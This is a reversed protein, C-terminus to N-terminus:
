APTVDVGDFTVSKLIEGAGFGSLTFSVSRQRIYEEAVRQSGVLESSVDQIVFAAVHMPWGSNVFRETAASTWQTEAVSWVDTSPNLSADAPNPDFAQYPNIKTEDSKLYQNVIIEETYPLTLEPATLTRITADIPLHMLGSFVAATQPLGQDRYTDDFLPDAFSGRKSAPERENMDNKLRLESILIGHNEQTELMRRLSTFPLVVTGVQEVIPMNRWNNTINALRILNSAVWAVAPKTRSSVGKIYVIEGTQDVCIADIRPMKYRYTILAQTGPVGGKITVTKETVDADNPQVTAMYRYTVSYTTGPSPEAGGPSWDVAGGSLLYDTGSKYTTSGSKVSMIQNATPDPLADSSGSILGRTVTVTKERNVIVSQVSLIPANRIEIVHPAPGSLLHPENQVLEIDPEEPVILRSSASRTYKYGRVNVTGDSVSFEQAGTQDNYGLARVRFGEVVYSGHAERDYRRITDLWPNEETTVERGTESGDNIEYVPYFQGEEGDGDWGWFANALYAPSMYEGEARTGPAQGRRDPNTAPDDTLTKYRVGVMITGTAPVTVEKEVLYHVFGEIYIQGSQLLVKIRNNVPPRIIMQGGTIMQGNTLLADAVRKLSRRQVDQVVNLEHSGLYNLAQFALALVGEDERFTNFYRDLQERPDTIETDAM